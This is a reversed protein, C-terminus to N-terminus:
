QQCLQITYVFARAVAEGARQNIPLALLSKQGKTDFRAHSGKRDFSIVEKKDKTELSVLQMGKPSPLQNLGVRAADLDKLDVSVDEYVEYTVDSATSAGTVGLAPKDGLPSKQDTYRQFIRYSLKCGTFKLNGVRVSDAVATYGSNRDITKRLWETSQTLNTGAPLQEIKNDTQGSAGIIFVSICPLCLLFFRITRM